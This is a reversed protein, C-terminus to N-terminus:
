RGKTSFVYLLSGFPNTGKLINKWQIGFLPKAIAYIRDGAMYYDVMEGGIDEVFIREELSIGNWWFSRIESGSYGIGKVFSFLPKRKVALVEAFRAMIRSKVSWKGSELMITPSDLKFKNITGGYDQRSMWIRIGKENFLQLFGDEDWAVYARTGDSSTLIQFDFINLGKPIGLPAGKRYQGNSYEMAYVPGSYGMRPDFEQGMLVEPTLPRIFHDGRYVQKFSDGQLEYILAIIEAGTTTRAGTSVDTTSNDTGRARMLTIIIKDRGTKGLDATDLSLIENHAPLDFQWLLKLDTDPQYVAVKSGVLVIQHKGDGRLDGAAIKESAFPLRYSVLVEAGAGIMGARLRLDRVSTVHVSTEKKSIERSTNTWLLQQTVAVQDGTTKATLFLVSDAGKKKAEEIVLALNDTELGTDILEFRGTEKVMQYYADGLHWDVTGQYFMLKQKSAPLKIKANRFEDIKGELVRASASNGSVTTIELRGVPIEVNGLHEKTVPHVFGVGERYAILRMGPKLPASPTGLQVTEGSIDAVTASLPTFYGLLEDKLIALNTEVPEKKPTQEAAGVLLPCILLLLTIILTNQICSRINM